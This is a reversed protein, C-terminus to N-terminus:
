IGAKKHTPYVEKHNILNDSIILFAYYLGHADDAGSSNGLGQSTTVLSTSSTSGYLSMSSM